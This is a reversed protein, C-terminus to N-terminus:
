SWSLSIHNELSLYRWCTAWAGLISLAAMDWGRSSDFHRLYMKAFVELERDSWKHVPSIECFKFNVGMVSIRKYRLVDM